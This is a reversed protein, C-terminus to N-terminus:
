REFRTNSMYVRRSNITVRELAQTRPRRREGERSLNDACIRHIRHLLDRRTQTNQTALLEIRAKNAFPILQILRLAVVHDISHNMRLLDSENVANTNSRVCAIIHAGETLVKVACIVFNACQLNWRIRDIPAEIVIVVYLGEGRTPCVQRHPGHKKLSQEKLFILPYESTMLIQAHIPCMNM